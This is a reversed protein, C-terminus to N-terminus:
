LRLNHIITVTKRFNYTYLSLFYSGSPFNEMNLKRTTGPIYKDIQEIHIVKGSENTLELMLKGCEETNISWYLWDEAPNPYTNITAAEDILSWSTNKIYKISITDSTPCDLSDAASVWYIYDGPSDDSAKAVFTQETSFDQWRYSIFDDPAQLKLTEDLFLVTDNGLSFKVPPAMPIDVTDAVSCGRKDTMRVFYRGPKNIVMRNTGGLTDNWIIDNFGKDVFLERQQGPCLPDANEIEGEELPCNYYKAIFVDENGIAKISTEAQLISDKFSGTIYLNGSRDLASGKSFDNGAGAIKEAWSVDGDSTIQAVFADSRGAEPILLNDGFRMTDSFSGTLYVGQLKDININYAYDYFSSGYQNTWQTRGTSDLKILFADTRGVSTLSTDGMFANMSFNGAVFLNGRIDSKVSSVKLYENGSFTKTWTTNGQNDLHALYVNANLSPNTTSISLVESAFSGSFSGSIYLGGKPDAAIAHINENELGGFVFTKTLKGSADIKLIFVDNRGKSSFEKEDFVIKGNFEGAAYVSGDSSSEVLHLSASRTYSFSKIWVTRGKSDMMAVFLSAGKGGATIKDFKIGDTISGTVLVNDKNDIAICSIIDAKKGGNGWIWRLKGNQTFSAIYMDRNGSSSVTKDQCVMDGSFSGAIYINDKSDTAIGMTIDWGKGGLQKIWQWSKQNQAYLPQQALIGALLFLIIYNLLRKM